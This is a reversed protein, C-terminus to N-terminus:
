KKLSKAWDLNAKALSSNPDLKIAMEGASIAEDIKNAGIYFVCLNNYVIPINPQIELAKKAFLISKDFMKANYFALSLNILTDVTLKPANPDNKRSLTFNYNNKALEFQPNLELAKKGALEAEDFIFLNNYAICM